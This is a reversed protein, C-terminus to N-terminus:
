PDLLLVWQVDDGNTAADFYVDGASVSGIASFDLSLVNGERGAIPAILTWGHASSVDVIGVFVSGSNGPNGQFWAKVIQDGVNLGGDASLQVRVGASSVDTTGIDLRAM